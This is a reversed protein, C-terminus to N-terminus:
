ESRRRRYPNVRAPRIQGGTTEQSTQEDHVGLAYGEDWAQERAARLLESDYEDDERIVIVKWPVPEARLTTNLADALLKVANIRDCSEVTVRDHPDPGYGGEGSFTEFRYGFIM